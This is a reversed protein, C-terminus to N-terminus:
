EGKNFDSNVISSGRDVIHQWAQPFTIELFAQIQPLKTLSTRRNMMSECEPCIAVLNGLERTKPQYDAMNM